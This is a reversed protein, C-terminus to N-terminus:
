DPGAQESLVLTKHGVRLLVAGDLVRCANADIPGPLGDLTLEDVIVGTSKDLIYLQYSGPLVRLNGQMLANRIADEAGPQLDLNLQGLDPDHGTPSRGILLAYRETLLQSVLQGIPGTVADRWVTRGRPDLAISRTPSMLHWYGDAEHASFQRVGGVTRSALQNVVRGDDTNVIVASIVQMQSSSLVVTGEGVQGRKGLGLARDVERRWVTRGEAPDYGTVLSPSAALLLGNDAFGMWTPAEDSALELGVPEGTLVDLMTIVGSQAQTNAWSAGGLALLGDSLAIANLQDAESLRRWLVRGSDRDICVVRGARDAVCLVSLDVATFLDSNLVMGTPDIQVRRVRAEGLLEALQRQEVTKPDRMQALDGMAAFVEKIDIQPWLTEGTRSDLAGIAQRQMSWWIVQRDDLSLLQMDPAPIAIEWVTKLAPGVCMRVQQGQRMLVRDHSLLVASGAGQRVPLHRGDILRPEALPLRLRALTRQDALLYQLESLWSQVSVPQEDRYLLMDPYERNVRRLWRRALEPREDAVYLGVIQAVAQSRTGPEASDLYVAQWQRLAQPTDGQETLLLAAQRRAQAAIQALPYRDALQIYREARADGNIMLESYEHEAILDFPAYVAQGHEQILSELLQRAELGARRSGLGATYLEEALSRDSLVAQFHEAADAPEGIESLFLGRTIQYAVEQAPTATITAMRELLADRLPVDGGTGPDTFDRLRQFVERQLADTQPGDPRRALADVALDVGDLVAQERKVKLALQGLALGPRPDSPDQEARRRIQRSAVAWDMFSGMWSGSALVVQGDSLLVNGPELLAQQRAISGDRLNLTLLKNHTSMVLVGAPDDQAGEQAGLSMDPAVGATGHVRGLAVHDLHRYWIPELTRGDLRAVNQGVALLDGGVAYCQEVDDWERGQLRRVPQGSDIDVLWHPGSPEAPPVVLGADLVVPGGRYAGLGVYARVAPQEENRELLTIWQMSGTRGDISAVAGRQDTVFVRGAHLTMRASPGAQNRQAAASSSLHRRWILTGDRADIATLYHDNLGSVSSRKVLTYVRGGAALPTGDFDGKALTEDLAEASVRWDEKGTALDFCVLVVSQDEGPVAAQRPYGIGLVAYGKGDRILVGRPETMRWIARPLTRAQTAEHSLHTVSWQYWGSARDYANVRDGLNLYLRLEDGAPVTVNVLQSAPMGRLSPRGPTAGGGEDALRIEWLPAQMSEPLSPQADVDGHEDAQVAVAQVRSALADLEELLLPEGLQNLAQRHSEFALPEDTLAAALARMYHYRGAHEPLDPHEILTDLVGAADRGEARELHYAGLAMGAQLGWPTLNFRQVVERLGAEDLRSDITPMARETLRQAAPSFTQRYAQLLEPDSLLAQRAWLLADTYTREGAPMLKNPSSEILEQLKQVADTHRNLGALENAQDALEKAAPSDEIYVPHQSGADPAQALTTVAFGFGAVLLSKVILIGPRSPRM